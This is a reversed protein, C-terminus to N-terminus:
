DETDETAETSRRATGDRGAVADHTPTGSRLPERLVSPATATDPGSGVGRGGPRATNRIAPTSVWSAQPVHRNIPVIPRTRTWCFLVPPTPGTAPQSAVAIAPSTNPPRM